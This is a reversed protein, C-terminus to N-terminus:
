ALTSVADCDCHYYSDHSLGILEGPYCFNLVQRRGDILVKSSKVVGEVVEYVYDAEDGAFFLNEGCKFTLEQTTSPRNVEYANKPFVIHSELARIPSTVYM